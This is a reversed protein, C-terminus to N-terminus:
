GLEGGHRGRCVGRESARIFDLLELIYPPSDVSFIAHTDLERRTLGARFLLRYATQLHRLDSSDWGARKLGVRNLGRLRARDGQVLCFPPVDQSVMAGAGVMALRGIRVFQHVGVLGGFVTGEGVEVHGALAVGNATVVNDGVQCDHGLHTGTMLMCGSGLRTWPRDSRTARNITVYERIINGDGMMVATRDGSNRKDQPASGIVVFPSLVNDSGVSVSGELIVHAELRNRAGLTVDPGIICFPGIECDAGIRAGAQVLATPHIRVSSHIFSAGTGANSSPITM